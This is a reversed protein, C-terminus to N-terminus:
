PDGSVRMPTTGQTGDQVREHARCGTLNAKSDSECIRSRWADDRGGGNLLDRLALLASTKGTQRPTHLM